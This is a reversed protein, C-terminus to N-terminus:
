EPLIFKGLKTEEIVQDFTMTICKVRLFVREQNNNRVGHITNGNFMSPHKLNYYYSYIIDRNFKISKAYGKAREWDEGPPMNYFDIPSAGTDPLIPFMIGCNMHFDVHPHFLYNPKYILIDVDAGQLPTNFNFREVLKKIPEFEKIHKGLTFYTDITDFMNESFRKSHTLNMSAHEENFKNMLTGFNSRYQKVSEYWDKLEERNYTIEDFIVHHPFIQM